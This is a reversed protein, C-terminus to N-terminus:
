ILLSARVRDRRDTRPGAGANKGSRQAALVGGHADLHERLRTGYDREIDVGNLHLRILGPCRKTRRKNRLVFTRSSLFDRVRGVTPISRSFDAL